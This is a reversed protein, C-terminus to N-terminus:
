NLENLIEKLVLKADDLVIKPEAEYYEFDIFREINEIEEVPINLSFLIATAGQIDKISLENKINNDVQIEGKINLGLEKGAEQLKQLCKESECVVVINKDM